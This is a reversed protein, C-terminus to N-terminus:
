YYAGGVWSNVIDLMPKQEVATDIILTTLGLMALRGNIIEAEETLGLKMAPLYGYGESYKQESPDYFLPDGFPLPCLTACLSLAFFHANAILIIARENTITEKGSITALTGWTKLDLAMEPDPILGHGKCYATACIFFWGFMAHRGNWKEAQVSPGWGWKSFQPFQKEWDAIADEYIGPDTLGSSELESVAPKSVAKNNLPTFASAAGALLLIVIKKMLAM